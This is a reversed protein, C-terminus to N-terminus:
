LLEEARHARRSAWASLRHWRRASSLRRVLRQQAAAQEAERQRIRALDEYILMTKAGEPSFLDQHNTPTTLQQRTM